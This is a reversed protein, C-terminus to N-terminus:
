KLSYKINESKLTIIRNYILEDLACYKKLLIKLKEYEKIKKKKLDNEIKSHLFFNKGFRINLLNNLVILDNFHNEFILIFDFKKIQKDIENIDSNNTIGFCNSIPNDCSIVFNELDKCNLDILEINNKPFNFFYYHSILRSIPERVCTFKYKCSRDLNPFDNISIHSLIVKIKPFDFRPNKKIEEINHPLYNVKINGSKEPVFITNKPYIKIFYEYLTSRLSTGSCRPIHYFIFESM